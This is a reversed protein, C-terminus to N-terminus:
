PKDETVNATSNDDKDANEPSDSDAPLTNQETAKDAKPAQVITSNQDNAPDVTAAKAQQQTLALGCVLGVVTSSVILGNKKINHKM